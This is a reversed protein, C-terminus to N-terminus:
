TASRIVTRHSQGAPEPRRGTLHKSRTNPPGWRLRKIFLGRVCCPLRTPRPMHEQEWAWSMLAGRAAPSARSTTRSFGHSQALRPRVSASLQRPGRSHLAVWCPLPAEEQVRSSSSSLRKRRTQSQTPAPSGRVVAPCTLCECAQAADCLTITEAAEPDRGLLPVSAAQTSCQGGARKMGPM